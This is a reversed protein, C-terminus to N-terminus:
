SSETKSTGGSADDKVEQWGSATAAPEDAANPDTWRVEDSEDDWWYPHDGETVKQWPM